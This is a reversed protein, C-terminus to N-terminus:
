PATPNWDPALGGGPADTVHRLETGDPNVTFLGAAQVFVISQGDPSWSPSNGGVQLASRGTGDANIVELEPVGPMPITGTQVSSFVIRQGDPAWAPDTSRVDTTTLVHHGTGDANVVGIVGYVNGGHGPWRTSYAIRQGDPSWALANLQECDVDVFPCPLDIIRTQGSGDFNMVYLDVNQPSQMPSISGVAIRTGDPSVAYAQDLGGTNFTYDVVLHVGSGDPNMAYLGPTQRGDRNSSIFYILRGDGSWSPDFDAHTSDTLRTLGTGDANVVYIAAGASDAAQFAIETGPLSPVGDPPETGGCAMLVLLLSGSLGRGQPSTIV